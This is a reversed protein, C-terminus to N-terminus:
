KDPEFCSLVADWALEGTLVGFAGLTLREDHVKETTTLFLVDGDGLCHFPHIARAMSVHIQRTVQRFTYLSDFKQNTIVLTLTTNGKHTQGLSSAYDKIRDSVDFHIKKKPDYHGRVIKGERNQIAGLSNVVCFVLIKVEGFQQYAGGQGGKEHYSFDIFKGVKASIGAGQNGLPFINEKAARLAARGLDMDPYIVNNPRDTYFDWIIAGAVGPISGWELQYDQEKLLEAQVGLISEFGFASGGAFTLADVEGINAGVVGPAGGRVDSIMKVKKGFRFVTCGTPGEKYEGIGIKLDPFDFKLTPDRSNTNPVLRTLDNSKIQNSMTMM